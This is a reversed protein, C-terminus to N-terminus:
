RSMAASSSCGSRRAASWASSAPRVRDAEVRFHINLIAQFATPCWLGPLLEAAVWPPVALVVAEVPMPGDTTRWRTVRGGDVRLAGGAPRVAGRLRAGAALGGGPDVLSESLGDRPVAPICAGGGRFLTERMVAGLLRALAVDPPTNLAAIALPEILRRYFM